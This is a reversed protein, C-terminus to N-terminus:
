VLISKVSQLLDPVLRFRLLWLEDLYFTKLTENSLEFLRIKTLIVNTYPIKIDLRLYNVDDLKEQLNSNDDTQTFEKNCQDLQLCVTSNQDLANVALWRSNLVASSSSLLIFPNYFGGTFSVNTSHYNSSSFTSDLDANLASLSKANPGNLASDSFYLAHSAINSKLLGTFQASTFWSSKRLGTTVDKITMFLHPNMSKVNDPM